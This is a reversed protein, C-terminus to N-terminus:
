PRTEASVQVPTKDRQRIRVWVAGALVWAALLPLLSALGRLGMLQGLNFAGYAGNANADSAALMTSRELALNGNWFSPWLLETMPSRYHFPPQPTTSVGILSFLVSVVLLVLLIWRGNRRFHGWAPALGVCLM